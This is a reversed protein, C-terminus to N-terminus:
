PIIKISQGDRLNVIENIIVKEGPNLGSLVEIKDGFLAGTKVIRLSVKGQSAVFVREIQGLRTISQKPVLLANIQKSKILVRAFQGSRMGSEEPLTIKTLFTRSLPDLSPAIEVISGIISQSDSSSQIEMPEGIKIFDILSEPIYSEVRLLTLNEIELLPMGPSALDGIHIKKQTIVGDFPAHIKTYNLMVDAEEAAAKVIRFRKELTKVTETTSAGQKLLNQERQLDRAVQDLQAQAQLVKGLIEGASIKLLFDGKFVEQGLTIPLQEITGMVKASLTAQEIPRVTGTVQERRQIAQLETEFIKVSLPLPTSTDSQDPFKTEHCGTLLILLYCLIIFSCNKM